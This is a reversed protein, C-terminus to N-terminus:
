GRSNTGAVPRLSVRRFLSFLLSPGASLPYRDVICVPAAVLVGVYECYLNLM